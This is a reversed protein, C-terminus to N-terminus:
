RLGLRVGVAAPNRHRAAFQEAAGARDVAHGKDAALSLIEIGPRLHAVAAPAILLHQREELAHFAVFAAAIVAEAAARSRQANGIWRRAFRDELRQDLRGALDADRVVGVVVTGALFADDHALRRDGSAAALARRAGIEIRDAVALVQLDDGLGQ